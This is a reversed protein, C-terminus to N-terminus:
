PIAKMAKWLYSKFHDFGNLGGNVTKRYREANGADAWMNAGSQMVFWMASKTAGLPKALLDPNALLDVKMGGRTLYENYSFYNRKGTIQILGRGRYKWGDGSSESGNGMRNAYVRNAIKEPKRAYSSALFKGFYKPFTTLLGQSSYNLNETLTRMENSEVAITAIFYRMRIPTNIGFQAAYQNIIPLYTDAMTHANPM